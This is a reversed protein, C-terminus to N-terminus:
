SLSMQRIGAAGLGGFSPHLPSFPSFKWHAWPPPPLLHEWGPRLAWRLVVSVELMEFISEPDLSGKGVKRMCTVVGKSTVSVLLSALSCAEEQLTADVVHRYGIQLILAATCMRPCRVGRVGM